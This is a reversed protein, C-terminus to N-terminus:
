QLARYSKSNSEFFNRLSNKNNDSVPKKNLLSDITKIHGNITDYFPQKFLEGEFVDELEEFGSIANYPNGNIALCFGKARTKDLFEKISKLYESGREFYVSSHTRGVFPSGDIAMIVKTLLMSKQMYLALKSGFTIM